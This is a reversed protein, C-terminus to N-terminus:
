ALRKRIRNLVEDWPIGADDGQEIEDLRRDLEEKQGETLPLHSAEDQLSDWLEEILRLKGEAGLKEIDIARTSM